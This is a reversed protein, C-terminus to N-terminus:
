CASSTPQGLKGVVTPPKKKFISIGWGWRDTSRHRQIGGTTGRSSWRTVVKPGSRSDSGEVTIELDPFAARYHRSIASAKPVASSRLRRTPPCWGEAFVKTPWRWAARVRRSTVDAAKNEEATV